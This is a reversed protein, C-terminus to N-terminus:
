IKNEESFLKFTSDTAIMVRSNMLKQRIQTARLMKEEYKAKLAKWILAWLIWIEWTVWKITKWIWLIWTTRFLMISEQFNTKHNRPQLKMAKKLPLTRRMKIPKIM